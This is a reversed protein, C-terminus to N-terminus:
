GWGSKLCGKKGSIIKMEATMGPALRPDLVQSNRLPNIIMKAQRSSSSWSMQLCMQFCNFWEHHIPGQTAKFIFGWGCSTTSGRVRANQQWLFEAVFVAYLWFSVSVVGGGEGNKRERSPALPRLNANWGSPMSAFQPVLCKRCQFNHLQHKHMEFLQFPDSDPM